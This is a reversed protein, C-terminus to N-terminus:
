PFTPECLFSNLIIMTQSRIFILQHFRAFTPYKHLLKVTCHFLNRQWRLLGWLLDVSDCYLTAPNLGLMWRCLPMQSAASSVTFSIRGFHSYFLRFLCSVEKFHVFCLKEENEKPKVRELSDGQVKVVVVCMNDNTGICIRQSSLDREPRSMKWNM